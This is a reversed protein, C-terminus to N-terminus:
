KTQYKELSKLSVKEIGGFFKRPIHALYLDKAETEAWCGVIYKYEDIEPPNTDPVVQKVRFIQDSGLDPGFYFDIAMGDEADGYSGMLLGYSAKMKKGHRKDGPDHTIGFRMKKWILHYKVRDNSSKILRDGWIGYKVGCLSVLPIILRDGGISLSM